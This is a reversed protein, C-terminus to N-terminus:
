VGLAVSLAEPCTSNVMVTGSGLFSSLVPLSQPDDLSEIIKFMM